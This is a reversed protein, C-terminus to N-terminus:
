RPTTAPEVRTVALWPGESPGLLAAWYWSSVDTWSRGTSDEIRECVRLELADRSAVFCGWSRGTADRRGALLRVTYGSGRFCDLAPHLM